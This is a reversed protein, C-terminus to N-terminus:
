SDQCSPQNNAALNSLEVVKQKLLLNAKRLKHMVEITRSIIEVRNNLNIQEDQQRQLQHSSKQKKQTKASVNVHHKEPASIHDHRLTAFFSNPDLLDGDDDVDKLISALLQFQITLEARREKERAQKRQKTSTCDHNTRDKAATFVMGERMYGSANNPLQVAQMMAQPTQPHLDIRGHQHHLSQAFPYTLYFPSNTGM